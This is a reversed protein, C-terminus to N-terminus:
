THKTALSDFWVFQDLPHVSGHTCVILYSIVSLMKGDGSTYTVDSQRVGRRPRHSRVPPGKHHMPSELSSWFNPLHM